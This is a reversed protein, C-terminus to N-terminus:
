SNPIVTISDNKIDIEKQRNSISIKSTLVEINNQGIGTDKNSKNISISNAKTKL